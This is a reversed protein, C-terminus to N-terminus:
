NELDYDFCNSKIIRIIEADFFVNKFFNEKIMVYYEENNKIQNKIFSYCVKPNRLEESEIGDLAIEIIHEKEVGSELLHNKFLKFLLYSKGCRRIGTVIKVMGNNKREILQKLYQDRRIEM